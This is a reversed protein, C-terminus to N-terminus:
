IDGKAYMKLRKMISNTSHFYESLEIFDRYLKTYKETSGPTPSYRIVETSAMASVADALTKHEGATLAAYIASGHAGAQTLMSANLERGLVDSLVQMIFPNKKAIGGGVVIKGIKIGAREYEDVIRKTGFALAEVVARFIAEPPTNLTIGLILGTLEDDVYPTRCGNWWDLAILGSEGIKMKAAGETLLDYISIGRAEAEATYSAPTCKNVVWGLADGAAAQGAEYAMYGPVVGGLVKGCIGEVRVSKDWIVLHCASTGFIIAMDGPNVVGIAPLAAHADILAVSVPTGVPLTTISSGYECMGGAARGIENIEGGLKDRVVHRLREDVLSFYEESPYGNRENWMAKYGAHCASRVTKGTLVKIIWDGAEVFHDAAAYVEPAKNLTEYIKPLCWECSIVGSYPEILAPFHETAVKTIREAEDIAGHHKWMKVYAHPEAKFRDLRCIPTGDELVPMMSSSTFDIALAGIESPSVGSELLVGRTVKSLAELYDDPHQLATTDLSTGGSIDGEKMVGHAYACESSAIERGDPTSVLTARASLSGFDIGITYKIM